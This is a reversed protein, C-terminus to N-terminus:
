LDQTAARTCPASGCFEVLRRIQDVCENGAFCGDHKLAMKEQCM